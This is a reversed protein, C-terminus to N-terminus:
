PSKRENIQKLVFDRSVAYEEADKIFTKSLNSLKQANEICLEIALDLKDALRKAEDLSFPKKQFSQIEERIDNRM